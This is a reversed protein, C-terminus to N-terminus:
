PTLSTSLARVSGSVPSMGGGRGAGSWVAKRWATRIAAARGQSKPTLM